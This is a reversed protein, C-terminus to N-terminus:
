QHELNDGSPLGSQFVDLLHGSRVILQGFPDHAGSSQILAGDVLAVRCVHLFQSILNQM